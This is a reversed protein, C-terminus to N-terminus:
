PEAHELLSWLHQVDDWNKIYGFSDVDFGFWRAAVDLLEEGKLTTYEPRANAASLVRPYRSQQYKIRWDRGHVPGRPGLEIVM